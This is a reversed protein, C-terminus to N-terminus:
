WIVVPSYQSLNQFISTTIILYSAPQPKDMGKYYFFSKDFHKRALTNFQYKNKLIEPFPVEIIESKFKGSIIHAVELFSVPSSTGVDYIGSEKRESLFICDIVDEVSVFDRKYNESGSFVKIVGTEKAQRSFQTIPSAQSGKHEEHNEM